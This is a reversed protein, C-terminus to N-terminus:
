QSPFPCGASKGTDTKVTEEQCMTILAVLNGLDQPMKTAGLQQLDPEKVSRRLWCGYAEWGVKQGETREKSKKESKKVNGDVSGLHSPM